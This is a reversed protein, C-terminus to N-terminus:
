GKKWGFAMNGGGTPGAVRVVHEDEVNIHIQAALKAEQEQDSLDPVPLQTHNAINHLVSCANVIKAAIEPKTASSGGFPM